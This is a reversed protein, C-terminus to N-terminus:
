SEREESFKKEILDSIYSAARRAAIKKLEDYLIGTFASDNGNESDNDRLANQKRKQPKSFGLVIGALLAFSVAQFPKKRIFEVPKFPGLLRNKTKEVRREFSGELFELDKKLEKKRIRFEKMTLTNKNIPQQDMRKVPNVM